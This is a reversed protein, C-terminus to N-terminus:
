PPTSRPSCQRFRKGRSADGRLLALYGGNMMIKARAIIRNIRKRLAANTWEIAPIRQAEPDLLIAAIERRSAGDREGDLARLQLMLRKRQDLSLRQSRLPPGARQGALRRQLREVGHKRAGYDDDNPIVFSVGRTAGDVFWLQHRGDPDDLLVHRGDETSISRLIPSLDDLHIAQAAAFSEPAPAVIVASPM